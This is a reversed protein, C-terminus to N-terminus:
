TNILQQYMPLVILKMKRLIEVNVYTTQGIQTKRPLTEPFDIQTTEPIDVTPEDSGELAPIEEEETMIKVFFTKLSIM